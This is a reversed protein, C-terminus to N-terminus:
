HRKGYLYIIAQIVYLVLIKIYEFSAVWWFIEFTIEGLFARIYCLDIITFIVSIIIIVSVRQLVLDM